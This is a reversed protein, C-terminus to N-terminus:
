DEKPYLQLEMGDFFEVILGRGTRVYWTYDKQYITWGYLFEDFAQQIRRKTTSTLYGANRLKVTGEIRDLAFVVTNHYVLKTTSDETFVATKHSGIV